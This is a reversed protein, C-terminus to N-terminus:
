MSFRGAIGEFQREFNEFFPRRKKQGKKRGNKRNKEDGAITLCFDSVTFVKFSRGGHQILFNRDFVARFASKQKKKLLPTSVCKSAFSSLVVIKLFTESDSSFLYLLFGCLFLTYSHYFVHCVARGIILFTHHFIIVHKHVGMLADYRLFWVALSSAIKIMLTVLTHRVVYWSQIPPRANIRSGGRDCVKEPQGPWRMLVDYRM